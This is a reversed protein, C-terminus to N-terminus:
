CTIFVHCLTIRQIQKNEDSIEFNHVGDVHSCIIILQITSHQGHPVILEKKDIFCYLSQHFFYEDFYCKHNALFSITKNQMRINSKNHMGTRRPPM